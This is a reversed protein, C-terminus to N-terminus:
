DLLWEVEGISFSEDLTHHVVLEGQLTVDKVLAKFVRNDKKFRVEQGLKYLNQKYLAVVEGPQHYMKDLYVQLENCIDRALDIPNIDKGTIQKLSVAKSQLEHFEVQNVNIGIGIISWLWSNGKVINEILIGGAKRDRWYLDNPWKIFADSLCHKTFVSQVAVATTMSLLFSQSLSLGIPEVIISLAMNKGPESDWQKERQGKGKTQNLTFVATGHQAMAEHVLGIAYNNTSEVQQLEIFPSGLPNKSSL